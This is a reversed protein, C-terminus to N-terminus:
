DVNDHLFPNNKKIETRREGNEDTEESLTYRSVNSETSRPGDTLTLNKRKYAPERELDALGNPSRLKLTLERMKAIRDEVRMQHEAPAMRDNRVPESPQHNQVPDPTLQHVIKEPAPTPPPAVTRQENTIEFEFTSQTLPEEVKPAPPPEPAPAAARVPEVVKLYPESIQPEAKPQPVEVKPLPAEVRPVTIAVPNVIPQTIMTPVDATLPTVKREPKAPELTAADPQVRFGTAIVTVRVKEGLTTDQCYGWIVDATSGAADQIHDTIGTIEDMLVEKDGYTINLLVYKAGSIDNDNLLPSALAEQAARLARDEGACEASGMIAVGSNSMVTKVDEFDTNVKGTVTIIEAIGRAATTLVNDAHIFAEGVNLNGFLERLKENNIVLLTDVAQRLEEIGATAQQKRKRGEWSFPMTVIGVTLIGMERAIRAIVPGAGTGTGGGMGATIFVMKTRTGLLQRIEEINEQAAQNGREPISGAGLGETLAVGLQLKVPVPSIDLAQKDTNCIIFDVGKIGQAFMHNVANSGGGGVGIVKIISSLEKPLDFKM